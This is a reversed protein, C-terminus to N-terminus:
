RRDLSSRGLTIAHNAHKEHEPHKSAVANVCQVAISTWTQNPLARQSFPQHRHVGTENAALSAVMGLSASLATNKVLIRVSPELAPIRM